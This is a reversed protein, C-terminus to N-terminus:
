NKLIPSFLYPSLINTPAVVYKALALEGNNCKATNILKEVVFDRVFDPLTAFGLDMAINEVVDSYYFNYLYTM